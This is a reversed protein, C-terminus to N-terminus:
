IILTKNLRLSGGEQLNETMDNVPQESVQNCCETQTVMYQTQSCFGGGIGGDGGHSYVKVEPPM